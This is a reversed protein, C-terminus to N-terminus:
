FAAGNAPRLWIWRRFLVTVYVLALFPKVNPGCELEITQEACVAVDLPKSRGWDIAMYITHTGPEVTVTAEGGNSVRAAVQGDVVVKYDRIRDQWRSEARRVVIRSM